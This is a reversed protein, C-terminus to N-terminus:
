DKEVVPAYLDLLLKEEDNEPYNIHCELGTFGHEVKDNDYHKPLGKCKPHLDCFENISIWYLLAQWGNGINNAGKVSLVTYLGAEVSKINLNGEVKFDEPITIWIEYGYPDEKSAIQEGRENFKPNPNNFGFLQHNLPDISIGSKKIWEEIKQYTKIEPDGIFEGWSHFSIVRM